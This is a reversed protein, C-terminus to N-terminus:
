SPLLAANKGTAVFRAVDDELTLFGSVTKGSVKVAAPVSYFTDATEALRTTPRVKGDSCLVQARVYFGFPFSQTVSTGKGYKRTDTAM